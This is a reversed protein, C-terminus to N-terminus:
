AFGVNRPTTIYPRVDVSIVLRARTEDSEWNERPLLLRDTEVELHTVARDDDMLVFFPDEGNQPGQPVQNANQPMTLADIATKVRNDVDGREGLTTVGIADRRLFLIRLSCQLFADRRALPVFRYGNRQYLDALVDVLPQFESEEPWEAIDRPYPRVNHPDKVRSRAARLMPDILWLERLQRHFAQRITWQQPARKTVVGPAPDKQTPRLMGDYILRFRM